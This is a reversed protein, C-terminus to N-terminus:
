DPRMLISPVYPLLHSTIAASVFVTFLPPSDLLRLFFAITFTIQKIRRAAADRVTIIGSHNIIDVAKFLMSSINVYGIVHYGWSGIQLLKLSAQALASNLRHNKFETNTAANAM